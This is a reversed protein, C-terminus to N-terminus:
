TDQGKTFDLPEDLPPLGAAILEDSYKARAIAIKIPDKSIYAEHFDKGPPPTDRGLDRNM